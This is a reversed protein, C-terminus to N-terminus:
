RTATALADVTSGYQRAIAGLTDGRRVVHLYHRIRESAPIAAIATTVREKRAARVALSYSRNAPTLRHTLAPQSRQASRSRPRRREALVELDLRRQRRRLSAFRVKLSQRCGTGRLNKVMVIVAWM